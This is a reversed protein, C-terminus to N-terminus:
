KYKHNYANVNDASWKQLLRSYEAGFEVVHYINNDLAQIESKLPKYLNNSYDSQSYYNYYMGSWSDIKHDLYWVHKSFLIVPIEKLEEHLRICNNVFENELQNSRLSVANTIRNQVDTIPFRANLDVDSFGFNKCSAIFSVIENYKNLANQIRTFEIDIPSDRVLLKSKKLENKESQIFKLDEPLWESGSFVFKTQNVFKEAYAAYLNKELNEKWQNNELENNGFRGQKYFDEIDFSIEKFFDKCFKDDPMAILKATEQEIKITFQNKPIAVEGIKGTKPLSFYIIAGIAVIVIIALSIKITKM